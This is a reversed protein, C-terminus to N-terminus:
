IYHCTFVWADNHSDYTVNVNNFAYDFQNSLRDNLMKIVREERPTDKFYNLIHLWNRDTIKHLDSEIGNRDAEFEEVIENAIDM